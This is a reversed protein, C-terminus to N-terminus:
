IYAFYLIYLHIVTHFVEFYTYLNVTLSIYIFFRLLARVNIRHRYKRGYCILNNTMNEVLSTYPVHTTDHASAFRARKHTVVRPPIWNKARKGGHSDRVSQEFGPNWPWTAPRRPCCSNETLPFRNSCRNGGYPRSAMPSCGAVACLLLWVIPRAGGGGACVCVLRKSEERRPGEGGRRRWLLDAYVFAGVGGLKCSGYM